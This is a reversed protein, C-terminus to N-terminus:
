KSIEASIDSKEDADKTIITGNRDISSKKGNPLTISASSINISSFTDIATLIEDENINYKKTLIDMDKPSLSIDVIPQRQSYVSAPIRSLIENQLMFKEFSKFTKFTYDYNAGSKVLSDVKALIEPTAGETLRNTTDLIKSLEADQESLSIQPLDTAQESYLESAEQQLTEELSTQSYGDDAKVAYGSANFHGGGGHSTALQLVNFNGYVPTSRFEVNYEGQTNEAFMCMFSCNEIDSMKFIKKQPSRVGFTRSLEDVEKNDMSLIMGFTDGIPFTKTKLLTQAIGVEDRLNSKRTCFALVQEYDAGLEMLKSLNQLTDSKLFKLKATDTLLGLTLMNAIQPSIKEQELENVLIECVSSASSDRIVNESSLGLEDEICVAGNAKGHHDIVYTNEPSSSKFLTNEAYSVTSTDLIISIGDKDVSTTIPINGVLQNFAKVESTVVYQADIGASKLYEAVARSSSIADGDPFKHAYIYVKKNEKKAKEIIEEIM